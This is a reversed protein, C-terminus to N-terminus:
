LDGFYTKTKLSFDAALHHLNLSWANIILKPGEHESKKIFREQKGTIMMCITDSVSQLQLTLKM